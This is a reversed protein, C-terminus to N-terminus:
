YPAEASQRSSTLRACLSAIRPIDSELGIRERGHLFERVTQKLYLHLPGATGDNLTVQGFRRLTLRARRLYNENAIRPCFVPQALIQALRAMKM